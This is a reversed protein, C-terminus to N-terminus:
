KHTKGEERKRQQWGQMWYRRRWDTHSSYQCAEPPIGDACADYGDQVIASNKKESEKWEQLVCSRVHVIGIVLVSLVLVLAVREALNKM